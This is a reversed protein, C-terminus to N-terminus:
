LDDDDDDDDEDNDDDDDDDEDESSSSSSPSGSSSSDTSDSSDSSDSSDTKAGGAGAIGVGVDLTAAVSAAKTKTKALSQSRGQGRGRGGGTGNSLGGAEDPVHDLVDDAVVTGPQPYEVAHIMNMAIEASICENVHPHYACHKWARDYQSAQGCWNRLRLLANSQDEDSLGSCAFFKTCKATKTKRHLPCIAQFGGYRTSKNADKPTVSFIGWMDKTFGPLQQDQNQLKSQVNRGGGHQPTRKQSSASASLPVMAPAPAPADAGQGDEDAAYAAALVSKAALAKLWAWAFWENLVHLV